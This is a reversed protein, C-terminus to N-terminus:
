LMIFKEKMRFVLIFVSAINLHNSLSAEKQRENNYNTDYDGRLTTVKGPVGTLCTYYFGSYM